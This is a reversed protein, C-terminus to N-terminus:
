GNRIIPLHTKYCLLEKPNPVMSRFAIAVFIVNNTEIQVVKSTNM